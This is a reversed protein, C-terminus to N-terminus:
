HVPVSTRQHYQPNMGDVLFGISIVVEDVEDRGVLSPLM